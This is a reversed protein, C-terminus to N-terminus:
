IKSLYGLEPEVYNAMKDAAKSLRERKKLPWKTTIKPEMHGIKLKNRHYNM